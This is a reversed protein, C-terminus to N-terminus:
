RDEPRRGVRFRLCRCGNESRDSRQTRSSPAQPEGKKPHEGGWNTVYARTDSAVVVGFPAVGVAISKGVVKGDRRDIRWLTNGRGSLALLSKGDITLGFRDAPDGPGRSAPAVLLRGDIRNM